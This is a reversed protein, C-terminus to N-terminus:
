QSAVVAMRALLADLDDRTNDIALTAADEDEAYSAGVTIAVRGRDGTDLDDINSVLVLEGVRNGVYAAPIGAATALERLARGRITLTGKLPTRAYRLLWADALSTMTATDTPVPVQLEKTRTRGRRDLVNTIGVQASARTVALPTGAGSTGSVYVKNYVDEGSNVTSNVWDVGPRRTSVELTARAWRNFFQLRGRATFRLVWRHYDNAKEMETRATRRENLTGFARLSLATQGIEVTSQDLQPAKTLAYEIIDTAKLVSQDASEFATDTYVRVSKIRVGIDYGATTAGTPSTYFVLAVYRGATAATGTNVHDAAGDHTVATWFDSRQASNGPTAGPFNPANGTMAYFAFATNATGYFDYDVSLRAATNSPGLDLTVGVWANPTFVAGQSWGLTIIGDSATVTAGSKYASPDAAPYTRGDAWDTLKEHVYVRDYPDDDLQFAHGRANVTLGADGQAPTDIIYGGWAPEDGGRDPLYELPTFAALDPHGVAPDRALTFTLGAPGWQDWTPAIGTPFIGRDRSDAGLTRWGDQTWVRVTGV